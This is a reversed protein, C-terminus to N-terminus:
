VALSLVLVLTLMSAALTTVIFVAALSADGGYRRPLVGSLIASPMAAELVLIERWMDPMDLTHAMGWVVGPQLLLKIVLVAAVVPLVTRLKPAELMTGIVLAALMTNAGGLINLVGTIPTMVPGDLPLHVLSAIIGATMALFVPSIFFRLVAKLKDGAIAEEAGYHIAVFVGVTFILTGVGLESTIVADPLAGSDAPFIQRVLPYGLLASSSFASALLFPGKQRAPLRLLQAAGWAVLLCVIEASIMSLALEAQHWSLRQQAMSVFILSPLTVSTALRAFTVSHAATVIGVRRLVVALAILAALMAVSEIITQEYM